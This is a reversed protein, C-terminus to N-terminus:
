YSGASHLMTGQDDYCYVPNMVGGHKDTEAMAEKLSDFDGILYDATPGEFTDVGVVRFKGKPATLETM